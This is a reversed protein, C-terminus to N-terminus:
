GPVSVVFSNAFTLGWQDSALDDHEPQFFGPSQLGCDTEVTCDLSGLSDSGSASGGAVATKEVSDFGEVTEGDGATEEDGAGDVYGVCNAEEVTTGAM